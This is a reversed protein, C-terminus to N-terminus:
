RWNCLIRSSWWGYQPRHIFIECCCYRGFQDEVLRHQHLWRESIKRNQRMNNTFKWCIISLLKSVKQKLMILTIMVKIMSVVSNFYDIRDIVTFCIKGMAFYSNRISGQIRVKELHYLQKCWWDPWIVISM